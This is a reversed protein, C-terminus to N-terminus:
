DTNTRMDKPQNRYKSSTGARLDHDETAPPTLHQTVRDSTSKRKMGLTSQLELGGKEQFRTGKVGFRGHCTCLKAASPKLHDEVSVYDHTPRSLDPTYPRMLRLYREVAELRALVERDISDNSPYYVQDQGGEAPGSRLDQRAQQAGRLASPQCPLQKALCQRRPDGEECQYSLVRKMKKAPREASETEANAATTDKATNRKKTGDQDDTPTTERADDTASATQNVAASVPDWNHIDSPSM